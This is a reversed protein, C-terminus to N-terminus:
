SLVFYFEVGNQTNHVGYICHHQELINKVISLGIGTGEMERNRSKDIKYFRQWIKQQEQEQIPEGENEVAVLIGEPNQQIRLSIRGEDNVHRIANSILNVLVQEFRHVDGQVLVTDGPFHTEIQIKKEIIKRSFKKLVFGILEVMNFEEISLKLMGSELQSLDLMDKILYDMKNSEDLIVDVFFDQDEASGIHDKLAEAYGGILTIPTKLEHSVATVFEKRMVELQREKEIDKKLMDNSAKLEGLTKDLKESLFNLILGLEGIEDKSNVECKVSFDLETMKSAANKLKVLPKSIMISYFLSLLLIIVLAFVYIYIYFEKTANVADGVPQLSAMSVVINQVGNNKVIPAFGVIYNTNNINDNSFVMQHKKLVLDRSSTRSASVWENIILDITTENVKNDLTYLTYFDVNSALTGTMYSMYYREINIIVSKSDNEEDFKRLYKRATDHDLKNKSFNESLKQISSTFHQHKKAVYYDEFFLDQFLVMATIFLIFVVATIFFLKTAIKNNRM